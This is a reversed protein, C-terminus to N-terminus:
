KMKFTKCETDSKCTTQSDCSSVDVNEASCDGHQNYVCKEAECRVHMQPNPISCGRSNQASGSSDKKEFDACSTQEHGCACKGSVMIDPRCCCNDSNNSCDCVSCQLKTM